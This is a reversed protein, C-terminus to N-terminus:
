AMKIIKRKFLEQLKIFNHSKLKEYVFDKAKANRKKAFETSWLVLESQTIFENVKNKTRWYYIDNKQKLNKERIYKRIDRIDSPMEKLDVNKIETYYYNTLRRLIDKVHKKKLYPRYTSFTREHDQLSESFDLICSQVLGCKKCTEFGEIIVNDHICTPETDNKNDKSMKSIIRDIMIYNEMYKCM